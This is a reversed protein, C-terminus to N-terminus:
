KAEEIKHDAFLSGSKAYLHDSYDVGEPGHKIKRDLLFIFLVFLLAYIVIFMILSFLIQGPDVSTSLGDSTKLLGYVIWPQRGIEATMWGLQNAFQPLLVAGLLIYLYWRKEALEGRWWFFGGLLSIAILTMGIGVM